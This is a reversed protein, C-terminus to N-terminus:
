FQKPESQRRKLEEDAEKKKEKFRKVLEASQLLLKGTDGSRYTKMLSLQNGSKDIWSLQSDIYAIGGRYIFVRRLAPPGYKNTYGSLLVEHADVNSISKGTSMDYSNQDVGYSLNALRDGIWCNFNEIHGQADQENSFCDLILGGILLRNDPSRIEGWRSLIDKKGDLFKQELQAETTIGPVIGVIDLQEPEAWANMFFVMAFAFAAFRTM